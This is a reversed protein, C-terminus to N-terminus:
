VSEKKPLLQGFSSTIIGVLLMLLGGWIAPGWGNITLYSPFFDALWKLAVAPLLWFGLIWLPVLWLLALGLSGVTLLASITVALFDVLWLLIGFFFALLLAALFNGHFDIGPIMPLVLAFVLATIILKLVFRM